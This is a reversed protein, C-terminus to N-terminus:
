KYAPNDAAVVEQEIATVRSGMAQMEQDKSSSLQSLINITSTADDVTTQSDVESLDKTSDGAVSSTPSM